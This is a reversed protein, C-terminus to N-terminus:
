FTEARSWQVNSACEDFTDAFIVLVEIARYVTLRTEARCSYNRLGAYNENDKDYKKSLMGGIKM